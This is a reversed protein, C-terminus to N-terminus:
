GSNAISASPLKPPSKLAISDNNSSASSANPVHDLKWHVRIEWDITIHQVPALIQIKHTSFEVWNLNSSELNIIKCIWDILSHNCSSGNPWKPTM